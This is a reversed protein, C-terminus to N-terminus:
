YLILYAICNYVAMAIYAMISKDYLRYICQIFMYVHTHTEEHMVACPSRNLVAYIRESHICAKIRTTHM